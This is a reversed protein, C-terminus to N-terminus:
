DQMECGELYEAHAAEAKRRREQMQLEFQGNLLSNGNLTEALRDCVGAINNMIGTVGTFIQKAESLMAVTEGGKHFLIIEHASQVMSLNYLVQMGREVIEPSYKFRRMGLTIVSVIEEMHEMVIEMEDKSNLSEGIMATIMANEEVSVARSDRENTQSVLNILSFIARFTVEENNSHRRISNLIQEIGGLKILIRKQVPILSINILSWCNMSQVQWHDIFRQMSDLIVAIGFRGTKNNVRYVDNGPRMFLEYVEGERGGIPRALTVIAKAAHEHIEVSDAFFCMAKLVMDTLGIRQANDRQSEDDLMSSLTSLCASVIGEVDDYFMMWNAISYITSTFPLGNFAPNIMELRAAHKPARSVLKTPLFGYLNQTISSGNSPLTPVAPLSLTSRVKNSPAHPPAFKSNKRDASLKPTPGSPNGYTVFAPLSFKQQKSNQYNRNVKNNERIVNASTQSELYYFCKLFNMFMQRYPIFSRTSSTYVLSSAATSTSLRFPPLQCARFWLSNDNSVTEKFLRNLPATLYFYQEWPTLYSILVSNNDTGLISFVNSSNYIFKSSPPLPNSRTHRRNSRGSSLTDSPSSNSNNETEDDESM